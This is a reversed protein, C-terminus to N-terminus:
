VLSIRITVCQFTRKKGVIVDLVRMYSSVYEPFSKVGLLVGASGTYRCLDPIQTNTWEDFAVSEDFVRDHRRCNISRGVVCM